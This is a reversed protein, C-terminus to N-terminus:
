TRSLVLLRPARKMVKKMSGQARGQVSADLPLSGLFALIKGQLKAVAYAPGSSADDVAAALKNKRAGSRGCAHDRWPADQLHPVVLIRILESQENCAL